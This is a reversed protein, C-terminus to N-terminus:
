VNKARGRRLIDARTLPPAPTEDAVKPAELGKLKDARGMLRLLKQLMNEWDVELERIRRQTTTTLGDCAKELESHLERKDLKHSSILFSYVSVCVAAFSFFLSLGILWM